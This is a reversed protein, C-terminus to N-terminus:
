HPHVHLVATDQRCQERTDYMADLPNGRGYREHHDFAGNLSAVVRFRDPYKLGLRVAGQGGMGVGAVAVAREGLQWRDRVWPVVNHVLHQEATLSPDFEPCIRDAWWSRGGHPAACALRHKTLAATLAANDAPSAADEDHLWLLAFRPPPGAPPDFVDAPKGAVEVRSWGPPM